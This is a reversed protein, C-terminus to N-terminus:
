IHRRRAFFMVVIGLIIFSLFVGAGTSPLLPASTYMDEETETPEAVIKEGNEDLVFEGDDDVVYTTESFVNPSPDLATRIELLYNMFGDDGDNQALVDGDFHELLGEEQVKQRREQLTNVEDRVTERSAAGQKRIRREDRGSLGAVSTEIDDYRNFQERSETLRFTGPRVKYMSGDQFFKNMNGTSEVCNDFTDNLQYGRDCQITCSPPGVFDGNEINHIEFPCRSFLEEILAIENIQSIGAVCMNDQVYCYETGDATWSGSSDRHAIWMKTGNAKSVPFLFMAPQSFSFMENSLGLAYTGYVIKRSGANDAKGSFTIDDLRPAQARDPAPLLGSWWTKLYEGNWTRTSTIETGGFLTMRLSGDSSVKKNVLTLSGTGELTVSSSGYDADVDEPLAVGELLIDKYFYLDEAGIDNSLHEQGIDSAAQTDTIFFSLVCFFSLAFGLTKNKM